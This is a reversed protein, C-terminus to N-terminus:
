DYTVVKVMNVFGRVRCYHRGAGVSFEPNGDLLIDGEILLPKSHLRKKAAVLVLNRLAERLADNRGEWGMYFDSTGEAEVSRLTNSRFASMWQEASPPIRFVLKIRYVTGRVGGVMQEVNSERLQGKLTIDFHEETKMLSSGPRYSFTYGYVNASLIHLAEILAKEEPGKGRNYAILPKREETKQDQFRGKGIEEVVPYEGYVTIVGRDGVTDSAHLPGALGWVLSALVILGPLFLRQTSDSVGQGDTGGVHGATSFDRKM